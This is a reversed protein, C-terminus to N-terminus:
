PYTYGLNLVAAMNSVNMYYVKRLLFYELIALSQFLKSKMTEGNWYSQSSNSLCSLSFNEEVKELSKQEPFFLFLFINEGKLHNDICFVYLKSSVRVKLQLKKARSEANL